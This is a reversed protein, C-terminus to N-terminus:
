HNVSDSYHLKVIQELVAAVKQFISNNIFCNMYSILLEVLMDMVDMFTEKHKSKNYQSPTIIVETIKPLKENMVHMNLAVTNHVETKTEELKENTELKIELKKNLAELKYVIQENTISGLCLLFSPRFCNMYSILLEFIIKGQPYTEDRHDAFPRGCTVIKGSENTFECPCRNIATIGAAQLQQKSNGCIEEMHFNTPLSSDDVSLIEFKRL